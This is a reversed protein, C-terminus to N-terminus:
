DVVVGDNRMKKRDLGPGHLRSLYDATASIEQDDFSRIFRVLNEDVNHRHGEALKHLQDVLYAYDQSRLSPVFGDADGRADAGHCGACQEHFIGRGLAVHTGDGTRARRALPVNNLYAAIDVWTQPDRLETQAIVRHMAASDREAGSFNALQRVLYAFRQGALAPIARMANGEAHPGHCRACSQAFLSAGRAPHVDLALAAQTSRDVTEESARANPIVQAFLLTSFAIFVSASSARIGAIM